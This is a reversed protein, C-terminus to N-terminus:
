DNVQLGKGLIQPCDDLIEVNYAVNENEKVNKLKLDRICNRIDDTAEVAARLMEKGAKGAMQARTADLSAFLLSNPSTTTILSFCDQLVRGVTVEVGVEGVIEDLHRFAGHGLHMMATQSLSTLTKHTSQVSIDAGCSMADLLHPKEIFRLHSGHAEDIVLPIGNAHCVSALQALQLTSCALGQYTPRTILVGCVREGYLSLVHTISETDVGLSIGWENSIQCPLLAADCDALVLADFVSKHSDRGVIFVSRSKSDDRDV